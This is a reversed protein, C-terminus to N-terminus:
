PDWFMLAPWWIPITLALVFLGILSLQVIRLLFVGPRTQSAGVLDPVTSQSTYQPFSRLDM